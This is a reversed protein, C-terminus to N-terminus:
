PRRRLLILLVSGAVASLLSGAMVGIKALEQLHTDSFALLTIFLSMTFGIGALVSVTYIHVWGLGAPLMALRTKVVLWITGTIGLQKGLFLGLLIGLPMPQKLEALSMGHLAVGASTFAFLPLVGYVVFPHLSHLCRALPSDGEKRANTLPLALGTIVGAVTTHIGAAHLCFALATGALLYPWIRVVCARNFVFLLIALILSLASPLLSLKQGYFLAIILIAGLDDFIAIALLLVKAASHIHRGFLLFICLAFAIDTAAPIAWGHRTGSASDNLFLYVICPALMGGAAALLPLLVQGKHSLLGEAMERKLEMGVTFFFLVMLVDKVWVGLPHTFRVYADALPSNALLLALGAALLM